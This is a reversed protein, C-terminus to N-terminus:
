VLGFIILFIAIGIYIAGLIWELGNSDSSNNSRRPANYRSYEKTIGRLNHCYNLIEGGSLIGDKLNDVDIVGGPIPEGLYKEIERLNININMIETSSYIRNNM